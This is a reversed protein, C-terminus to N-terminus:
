ARNVRETGGDPHLRVLAGADDLAVVPYGHALQHSGLAVAEAAQDIDLDIVTNVADRESPTLDAWACTGARVGELAPAAYRDVMRGLRTWHELQQEASWGHRVGAAEADDYLDAAVGISGRHPSM